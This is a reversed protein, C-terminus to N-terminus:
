ASGSQAEVAAATELGAPAPEVAGARQARIGRALVFGIAAAASCILAGAGWIWRPGAAETIRGALIM